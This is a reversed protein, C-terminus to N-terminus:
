SKPKTSDLLKFFDARAAAVTKTPGTLKFFYHGTPSAVIAGLLAHNQKESTAQGPMGSLFTGSVIEVVHQHLGNADREQRKVQSEDVGKFQGVWRRINPEVGGGSSPGFYFVALTADEAEGAAKPIVYSAKRMASTPAVRKWAAPDDWSIGLKTTPTKVAHKAGPHGAPMGPHGAPLKSAASPASAPPEQAPPEEAAKPTRTFAYVFIGVLVIGGGIWMIGQNGSSERKSPPADDESM